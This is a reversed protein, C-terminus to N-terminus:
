LLSTPNSMRRGAAAGMFYAISAAVVVVGLAVLAARTVNQEYVVNVTRKTETLAMDQIQGVRQKLEDLSVREEPPIYLPQGKAPDVTAPTM